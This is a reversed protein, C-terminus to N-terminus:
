YQRLYRKTFWPYWDIDPVIQPLNYDAISGIGNIGNGPLGWKQKFHQQSHILITNEGGMREIEVHQNIYNGDVARSAIDIEIHDRLGIDNHVFGWDHAEFISLRSKDYYTYCRKLFDADGCYCGLFREDFYGVKSLINRNLYFFTDGLPGWILDFRECNNRILDVVSSRVSTDDQVFIAHTKDKLAKLFMNNWSRSCYSNALEDSLSNVIWGKVYTRNKNLVEISPYNSFIYVDCGASGFTEIQRNLAAPRNFTLIWVDM